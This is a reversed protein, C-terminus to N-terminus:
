NSEKSSFSTAGDHKIITGKSNLLNDSSRIIVSDVGQSIADFANEIKPIMGKAIVGVEKLSKYTSPTILEILSDEDNIDKLVGPKEFCYMLTTKAMRSSAIAIASAVSDANCNLLQGKGDHMIACIVPVIGNSLLLDILGINVGNLPIDGVFGYDIPFPNRLNAKIINGDSGTLGLANCGEKQLLAVIRKNILGAYVMTVLEITEKNTVRRGEILTTEIGMRASMKTAEKGGGHVLIKKGSIATFEKLFQVLKESDDIVNGGIKVVTIKMM